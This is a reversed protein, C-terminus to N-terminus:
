RGLARRYEERLRDDGLVDRAEGLVRRVEEVKDLLIADSPPCREPALEALLRGVSQEVDARCCDPPLALLDFYDAQEAQRLMEEVWGRDLPRPRAPAAPRSPAAPAPAPPPPPPAARLEQRARRLDREAAALAASEAAASTSTDFAPGAPEARREARQPARAPPLPARGAGGVAGARAALAALVARADLPRGLEVVRVGDAVLRKALAAGEGGECEPAVVVAEAAGRAVAALADSVDTAVISVHGADALARKLASIEAIDDDVLLVRAM